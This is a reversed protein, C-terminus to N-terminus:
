ARRVGTFLVLGKMVGTLDREEPSGLAALREMRVIVPLVLPPMKYYYTNNYYPGMALAQGWYAMVCNSDNRAAEKFSALAERLHYGYYLSLGQDFYFQASDNTTTIKHHHHGCGPFVPAYRGSVDPRLEADRMSPGCSVGQERNEQNLEHTRTHLDRTGTRVSLFLLSFCSFVAYIFLKSM